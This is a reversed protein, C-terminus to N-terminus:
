PALRPPAAASSAISLEQAAPTDTTFMSLPKPAANIACAITRWIPAAAPAAAGGPPLRHGDGVEVADGAGAAVHQEAGQEVGADRLRLQAATQGRQAQGAELQPHPPHLLGTDARELDLHPHGIVGGLPVHRLDDGQHLRAADRGGDLTAGRGDEPAQALHLGRDVAARRLADVQM